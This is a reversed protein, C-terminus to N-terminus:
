KDALEVSEGVNDYNSQIKKVMDDKQGIVVLLQAEDKCKNYLNDITMLLQGHERTDNLMTSSKERTQAVLATREGELKAFEQQNASIKIGVELKKKTKDNKFEKSEAQIKDIEREVQEHRKNLQENESKLTEYRGTIDSIENYEDM